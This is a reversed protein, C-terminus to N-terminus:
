CCSKILKGKIFIYICHIHTRTLKLIRATIFNQISNLVFFWRKKEFSFWFACKEMLLNVKLVFLM